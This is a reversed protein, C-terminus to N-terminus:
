EHVETGQTGLLPVLDDLLWCPRGDLATYEVAWPCRQRVDHVTFGDDALEEVTFIDATM